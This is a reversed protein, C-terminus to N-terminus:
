EPAITTKYDLIVKEGSKRYVELLFSGKIKHLSDGAEIKSKWTPEIRYVTKDKLIATRMNHNPKDNYVTDVVGNVTELSDRLIISERMSLGFVANYSVFLVLCFPISCFICYIIIKDIKQMNDLIEQQARNNKM